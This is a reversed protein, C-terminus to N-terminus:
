QAVSVEVYVETPKAPLWVILPVREVLGFAFGPHLKFGPPGQGINFVIGNIHNFRRQGVTHAFLAFYHYLLGSAVEAVLLGNVDIM